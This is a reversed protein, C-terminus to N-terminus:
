SFNPDTVINEYRLVEFNVESSAMLMKQSADQGLKGWLTAIAEDTLPASAGAHNTIKTINRTIIQLNIIDAREDNDKLPPKLRRRSRRSSQRPLGM